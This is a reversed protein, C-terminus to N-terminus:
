ALHALMEQRVHEKLKPMDDATMGRTEIPDSFYVDVVGPLLQLGKAENIKKTGVLTLVVIPKQAMLAVRFAGDRFDILPKDTRNRTGEPFVFLSHGKQLESVMYRVSKERSEQSKRDVLIALTKVMYGFFPIKRLENKALFSVAHPVSGGAVLTDYQTVHNAVFVYTGKPDIKERGHMRKRVLALIMHANCLYHCCIWVCARAYRKGTFTFLIAFLIAFVAVILM